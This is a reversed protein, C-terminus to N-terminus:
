EWKTLYSRYSETELSLGSIEPEAFLDLALFQIWELQKHTLFITEWTKYLSVSTNIYLWIWLYIIDQKDYKLSTLFIHIQIFSELQKGNSFAFSAIITRLLCESHNQTMNQMAIRGSPSIPEQRVICDSFICTLRLAPISSPSALLDNWTVSM